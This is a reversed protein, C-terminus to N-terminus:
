PRNPSRYWPTLTVSRTAVGTGIAVAAEIVMWAATRPNRARRKPEPATSRTPVSAHAAHSLHLVTRVRGDTPIHWTKRYSEMLCTRRWDYHSSGSWCDERQLDPGILGTMMVRSTSRPTPSSSAIQSMLM